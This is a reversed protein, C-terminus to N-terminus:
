ITQFLDKFKKAYEDRVSGLGASDRALKRLQQLEEKESITIFGFEPYKMLEKIINLKTFGLVFVSPTTKDAISQAVRGSGLQLMRESFIRSYTQILSAAIAIAGSTKGTGTKWKILLRTYPTDASVLNQTFLQHARLKLHKGHLADFENPDRFNRGPDSAFQYFEKRHLLDEIISQINDDTLEDFNDPLSKYSMQKSLEASELHRQESFRHKEFCLGPPISSYQM